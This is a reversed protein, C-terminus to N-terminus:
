AEFSDDPVWAPACVALFELEDRGPNGIQHVEGPQILCTDGPGLAFPQGDIMMSAAGRLIYYTEETVKHYHRSSAGGPAIVIHALSHRAGGHESARGILEFVTEGGPSALPSVFARSTKRM